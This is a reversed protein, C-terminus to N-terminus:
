LLFNIGLCIGFYCCLICNKTSISWFLKTLNHSIWLNLCLLVLGLRETMNAFTWLFIHSANTTNYVMPSSKCCSFPFVLNEETFSASVIWTFKKRRTNQGEYKSICIAGNQNCYICIPYLIFYLYSVLVFNYLYHWKTIATSVFVFLICIHYLYLYPVFIICICIPYFCLIICITGNQSQLLYFYM